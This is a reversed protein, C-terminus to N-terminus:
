AFDNIDGQMANFRLLLERLALEYICRQDVDTTQAAMQVLKKVFIGKVTNEAVLNAVFNSSLLETSDIVTLSSFNDLCKATITKTCLLYDIKGVLKVNVALTSDAFSIIQTCIGGLAIGDTVDITYSKCKSKCGSQYKPSLNHDVSVFHDM